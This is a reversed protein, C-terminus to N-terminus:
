RTEEFSWEPIAGQRSAVLAGVRNAFAAIEDLPRGGSFGHVFAAAFADGAGVTDAVQISQGGAVVFQGGALMACGREGLTVCVARWGFRAAGHHCFSEPDTALGLFGGLREAESENLKVVDAVALLEAALELSDYGPRLNVDYFRLTGPLSEILRRLTERGERSSPFLTGFYLWAPRLESLAQVDCAGLEVDDYAAPRDIRFTPQGDGDIAVSATGTKWRSSCRLMRLDLGLAKMRRLAEQGLEDAGVASILISRLGLRSSHVAFNLPAGGLCVSDPLIDWLVEGLVVLPGNIPTSV